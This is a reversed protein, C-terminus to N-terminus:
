KARGELLFILNCVAHALHPHGSKKDVLEGKRWSIIHRMLAAYYRNNFNKVKKWNYEGYEKAGQTLIKVVSEIADVSLLDWRLKGADNKNGEM